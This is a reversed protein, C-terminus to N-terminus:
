DRGLLDNIIAQGNEISSSFDDHQLKKKFRKAASKAKEVRAEAKGMVTKEYLQKKGKATTKKNRLKADDENEWKQIKEKLDKRQSLRTSNIWDKDLEKGRKNSEKEDEYDREARQWADREKGGTAEYAARGAKRAQYGVEWAANDVAKGAKKAADSVAEGAKMGYYDADIKAYRYKAAAGEGIKQIYKHKKWPGSSHELANDYWGMNRVM